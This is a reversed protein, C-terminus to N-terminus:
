YEGASYLLTYFMLWLVSESVLAWILVRGGASFLRLFRAVDRSELDAARGARRLGIGVAVDSLLSLAAFFALLMWGWEGRGRMALWYGVRHVLSADPAFRALLWWNLNYLAVGLPAGIMSGLAYSIGSLALADNSQLRLLWRAFAVKLWVAPVCLAWVTVCIAVLGDAAQGM